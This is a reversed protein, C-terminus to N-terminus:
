LEEHNLSRLQYKLHLLEQADGDIAELVDEHAASSEEKHQIQNCDSDFFLRIPKEALINALAQLHLVVELLQQLASSIGYM